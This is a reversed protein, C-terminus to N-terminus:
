CNGGEVSVDRQSYIFGTVKQPPGYLHLVQDILHSGLDYIVGGGPIPKAKWNTPSELKHRDFHTEFEAVRGLSPLVSQLTRFDSDWRRNQYVTLLKGASKAIEM